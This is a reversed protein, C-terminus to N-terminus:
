DKAVGDLSFPFAKMKIYDELIGHPRMTSCMIHFEKLHKHPDESRLVIGDWESSPSMKSSLKFNTPLPTSIPKCDQMNFRRLIKLLYNKQSLWVKRDKLDKMDFEKALKVVLMDDVYLLLIVFDTNGFRNYYTCHDSSLRNYGLSIIFSDFRKYWCRPAQKLGYLSKTLRCVLNEKGQEKFGEHLFATKVDLQELHLDFVACMALVIRITTMRVVPSFIENFDIGEKQAYGEIVLKIMTMGNTRTFGNVVLPKRGKPLEVLKWTKNRLAEQFTSPEEEETLLCYADHSAM